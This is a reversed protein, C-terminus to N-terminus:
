CDIKLPPHAKAEAEAPHTPSIDISLEGRKGCCNSRIRKHNIVGIVATAVSLAIATYSIIKDDM